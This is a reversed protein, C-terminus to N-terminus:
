QPVETCNLAWCDQAQELFAPEAFIRGNYGYHTPAQESAVFDGGWSGVIRGLLPYPNSPQFQPYLRTWDASPGAGAILMCHGGAMSGTQAGVVSRGDNSVFAETVDWGAAICWKAQLARRIGDIDGDPIRYYSKVGRRDFGAHELAFSPQDLIRYRRPDSEPLTTDQADTMPMESELCAGFKMLAKLGQRVQTGEDVDVGDLNLALRYGFRASLEPCDNGANLTSIRAGQAVGNWVCSSTQLQNKAHVEDRDANAFPLLPAVSFPHASFKHDREDPVDRVYGLGRSM